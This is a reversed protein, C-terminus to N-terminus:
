YTVIDRVTAIINNASIGYKELLVAPPGSRPVTSVALMKVIINRKLALASVVAEGLGGQPYHDEVTIVRGGVEKAHKAISEEDIPKITFPDMVRINIGEKALHDAAKIAEHLTVGAGIVLAVDKPSSRIVKAEGIIMPEDNNYLVATAPRSTRIFCVGKTNAALEVARETSVADSPYFVTSGPIARFMAIDELGMQSPGDEGISVGCHSGVFNVNTQSIAGM